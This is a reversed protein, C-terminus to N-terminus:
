ASSRCADCRSSACSAGSPSVVGSRARRICAPVRARGAAPRPSSRASSKARPLGRAAPHTRRAVAVEAFIAAIRSSALRRCRRSEGCGNALHPLSRCRAPHTAFRALPARVRRAPWFSRRSLAGSPAGLFAAPVASVLRAGRAHVLNSRHTVKSPWDGDANTFALLDWHAFGIRTFALAAARRTFAARLRGLVPLAAATRDACATRAARARRRTSAGARLSRSGIVM